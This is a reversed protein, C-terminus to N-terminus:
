RCIGHGSLRLRYRQKSQTSYSGVCRSNGRGAAGINVYFRSRAAYADADTPELRIAFTYCAIARFAEGKKECLAGLKLFYQPDKANKTGNKLDAIEADARESREELADLRQEISNIRDNTQKVMRTFEDRTLRENLGERLKRVEGQVESRLAANGELERLRRELEKLDPRGTASDWVRDAVLRRSSFRGSM